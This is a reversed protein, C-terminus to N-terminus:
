HARGIQAFGHLITDTINAKGDGDTDEIYLLNPSDTVLLGKKWRLISTPLTLGEKFVIRKDLKGDGNGDKLIIINGSGTKDLPYGHMEVVYMTGNEDIEMDVPDTVLPESAVMEIKFGDAVQFTALADAASVNGSQPAAKKDSCHTLSCILLVAFLYRSVGKVSKSIHYM